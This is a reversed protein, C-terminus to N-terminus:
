RCYQRYTRRPVKKLEDGTLGLAQLHKDVREKEGPLPKYVADSLACVFYKYLSSAAKERTCTFLIGLMHRIDYKTVEFPWDDPIPTGLAEPSFEGSV